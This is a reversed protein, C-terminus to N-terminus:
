DGRCDRDQHAHAVVPNLPDGPELEGSEHQERGGPQHNHDRLIVQNSKTDDQLQLIQCELNDCGEIPIRVSRAFCPKIISGNPGSSPSHRCTMTKRDIAEITSPATAAIPWSLM